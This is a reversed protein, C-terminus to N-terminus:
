NFANSKLYHKLTKLMVQLWHTLIHVSICHRYDTLQTCAICHMRGDVDSEPWVQRETLGRNRPPMAGPGRRSRSPKAGLCWWPSQERCGRQPSHGRVALEPPKWGWIGARKWCIRNHATTFIIQLEINYFSVGKTSYSPLKRQQLTLFRPTVENEPRRQTQWQNKWRIWSSCGHQCYTRVTSCVGFVQPPSTRSCHSTFVAVCASANADNLHVGHVNAHEWKHVYKVLHKTLTAHLIFSYSFPHWLASSTTTATLVFAV